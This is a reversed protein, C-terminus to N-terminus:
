FCKYYKNRKNLFIKKIEEHNGEKFIKNLFNKEKFIKNIEKYITM